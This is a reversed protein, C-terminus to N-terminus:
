RIYAIKNKIVIENETEFKIKGNHITKDNLDRSEIITEMPVQIDVNSVMLIIENNESCVSFGLTGRAIIYFVM